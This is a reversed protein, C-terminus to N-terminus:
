VEKGVKGGTHRKSSLTVSQPAEFIKGGDNTIIFIYQLHVDHIKVNKYKLRLFLKLQAQLNFKM